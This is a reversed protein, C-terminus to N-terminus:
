DLCELPDATLDPGRTLDSPAPLPEGGGFLRDLLRVPDAINLQGDDNMDTADECLAPVGDFLYQLSHIADSIDVAGDRNSDGRRFYVALTPHDFPPLSNRVREDTLALLFQILDQQSSASLNLPPTGTGSEPNQFDGGINYFEVVDALTDKGGNHFYPARLEVNRLPPTKFRGIDDPNGTVNFRGVDEDEPRVGIDHFDGDSLFPAEHCVVCNMNFVMMGMMQSMSLATMDGAIFQDLPTQDSVLTREYSAIAFAIREATIESSGFAMQFLSEYDGYQALTDLMAQPIDTTYQLPVASMLRARVDDWTRVECGMEIDSVIPGVSQSELAGGASTSNAPISNAGTEPNQFEPGASGDWFLLGSFMANVASPSKRDTVRRETGFNADSDLTGLCDQRQVGMSGRIDDSTGFTGDPGPHVSLPHFSRSDSGGSAPQHCSGCAVAGDVSLQTDWFLIKGLMAKEPTLPNEAPVPVPPLPPMMGGGPPMGGGGGPPMGGGGGPPMGQAALQLNGILLMVTLVLGMVSIRAPGLRQKSTDMEETGGEPLELWRLLM